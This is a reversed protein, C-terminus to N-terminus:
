NKQGNKIHEHFSDLATLFTERSWENVMDRELPNVFRIVDRKVGEMNLSGIKERLAKEFWIRTAKIKQGKWPGSRNIADSLYRYNPEIKKDVYWLFDYWDRGKVYEGYDRCLLAHAKGAFLSPMDYLRITAAYPFSIGAEISDSGEPPSTDLELKVM